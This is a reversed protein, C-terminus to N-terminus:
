DEVEHSEVSGTQSDIVITAVRPRTYGVDAQVVWSNSEQRTKTVQVFHFGMRNLFERAKEAAADANM